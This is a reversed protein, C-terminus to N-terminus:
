GLRHREVICEIGLEGAIETVETGTAFGTAVAAAVTASITARAAVVTASITAATAAGAPMASQDLLRRVVNVSRCIVCSSEPRVTAM